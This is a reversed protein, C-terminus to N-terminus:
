CYYSCPQPGRGRASHAHPVVVLAACSRDQLLASPGAGPWTPFAGASWAKGTLSFKLRGTAVDWVRVAQRSDAGLVLKHDATFCVSNLGEFAGQALISSPRRPASPPRPRPPHTSLPLLKRAM